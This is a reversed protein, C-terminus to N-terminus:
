SLGNDNGRFLSIGVLVVAIAVQGLADVDKVPAVAHRGGLEIHDLM